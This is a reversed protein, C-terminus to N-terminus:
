NLKAAFLKPCERPARRYEALLRKLRFQGLGSPDVVLLNAGVSAASAALSAPDAACIARVGSRRNALCIAAAVHRTLLLGAVEPAALAAALRAVSEFICNSESAEVAFGEGAATPLSAPCCSEHIVAVLRRAMAAAAQPRAFSLAVGRRQLEDRVAPTVIAKPPVVLRRVAGLRGELDALTIVRQSLALEESRAKTTTTPPMAARPSEPKPSPQTAAVPLAATKPGAACASPRAGGLVQALVERVIREVESRLEAM